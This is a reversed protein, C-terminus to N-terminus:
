LEVGPYYVGYHYGIKAQSYDIWFSKSANKRMNNLYTFGNRAITVRNAAVALNYASAPVKITEGKDTELYKNTGIFIDGFVAMQGQSAGMLFQNMLAMQAMLDNDWLRQLIYIQEHAGFEIAATTQLDQYSLTDGSALALEAQYQIRYGNRAEQTMWTENMLHQAGYKNLLAFAGIDTLVDLQGTILTQTSQLLVQSLEVGNRPDLVLHIKYTELIHKMQYALVVSARVENAAFIGLKTWYFTPAKRQLADYSMLVFSNRILTIHSPSGNYFASAKQTVLAIRSTMNEKLKEYKARYNPQANVNNYLADVDNAILYIENLFNRDRPSIIFTDENYQNLLQVILTQQEPTSNNNTEKKCNTLIFFSIIFLLLLNIRKM